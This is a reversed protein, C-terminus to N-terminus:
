WCSEAQLKLVAGRLAQTIEEKTGSLLLPSGINVECIFPVFFCEGKPLARGMNSLYVPVVPVQSFEKIIHAIGTHFLGIKDSPGRTGEPFVILTQGSALAARLGELPNHDKSIHKREIPLINFFLRSSAAVWRNRNFYDAAAVPRVRELSELPFLGMLTAADLHSSHNAVVIFPHQPPIHERGRVRLGIFFALLPRVIIAFFVIRIINQM